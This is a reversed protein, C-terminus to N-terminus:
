FLLLRSINIAILVEHFFFPHFKKAVEVDNLFQHYMTRALLLRPRYNPFASRARDNPRDAEGLGLRAVHKRQPPKKPKSECLSLYGQGPKKSVGVVSEFESEILRGVSCM